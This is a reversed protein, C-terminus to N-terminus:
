LELRLGIQVQHFRFKEMDLQDSKGMKNFHYNGKLSSFINIRSGTRFNFNLGYLGQWVRQKEFDSDVLDFYKGSHIGLISRAFGAEIQINSRHSFIDYGIIIPISVLRYRNYNKENTKEITSIDTIGFVNETTGNQFHNIEILQNDHPATVIQESIKETSNVFQDFTIGTKFYVNKHPFYKEYLINFSLIDLPKENTLIKGTSRVGYGVNLHLYKKPHFPILVPDLVQQTYKKSSNLNLIDFNEHSPLELLSMKLNPLFIVAMPTKEKPSIISDVLSKIKENGKEENQNPVIFNDNTKKSFVLNSNPTITNVVANNIVESFSTNSNEDLQNNKSNSYNHNELNKNKNFITKTESTINKDSHLQSNNESNPLTSYPTEINEFPQNVEELNNELKTITNNDSKDNLLFYSGAVGITMLGSFIWFFFFRNKKKPQRKNQLSEWANEIDLPSDYEGLKEELNKNLWDNKM